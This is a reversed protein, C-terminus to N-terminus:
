WPHWHLQRKEYNTESVYFGLIKSVVIIVYKFTISVHCKRKTLLYEKKLAGYVYNLYEQKLYTSGPDHYYYGSNM